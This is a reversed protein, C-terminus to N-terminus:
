GILYQQKFFILDKGKQAPEQFHTMILSGKGNKSVGKHFQGKMESPFYLCDNLLGVTVKLKKKRGNNLTPLATFVRSPLSKLTLPLSSSQKAEFYVVFVIM